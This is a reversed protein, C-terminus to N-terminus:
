NLRAVIRYKPEQRGGTTDELDMIGFAEPQCGVEVTTPREVLHFRPIHLTNRFIMIRIARELSNRWALLTRTLRREHTLFDRGGTSNSRSLVKHHPVEIRRLEM